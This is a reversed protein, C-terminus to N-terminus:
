VRAPAVCLEQLEEGPLWTRTTSDYWVAYFGCNPVILRETIEPFWRYLVVRMLLSHFVVALDGTEFRGAFGELAAVAREYAVAKREGGPFGNDLLRPDRWRDVAAEGFRAVVEGTTLGEAEGLHVERLLPTVEVPLGHPRALIEATERARRLDSSLVARLPLERFLAALNQAQSRGEDSLPLDTHGQWLCQRNWETEGHRVLWVRVRQESGTM